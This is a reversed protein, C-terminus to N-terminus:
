PIPVVLVSFFDDLEEQVSAFKTPINKQEHLMDVHEIFLETISDNFVQHYAFAEIPYFDRVDARQKLDGSEGAFEHFHVNSGDLVAFAIM